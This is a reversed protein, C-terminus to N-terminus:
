SKKTKPVSYYQIDQYKIAPINLYAWSPHPMKQWHQFAKNRFKQLFLPEKKKQTILSVIGENLGKPFSETEIDTKFGYKYPSTVIDDLLTNPDKIPREM